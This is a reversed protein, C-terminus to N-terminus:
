YFITSIFCGDGSDDNNEGNTQENVTIVVSDSDSDGDNDTGLLIVDFTGVKNFVLEGPNVLDSNEAGGNFDWSCTMPPNGGLISGQFLISDGVIISQDSSPLLIKVVPQEENCDPTGDLDSDTDAVGCGCIGPDVKNPDNPCNDVTGQNWGALTAWLWWAAYAKRNANLAQSHASGCTYWDVGETHSNQWAIAWNADRIGNGDSDYDCNDNVLKDGYYDGEPDYIEIDYFDYLVKNNAICYNRIQQNRLHLNGTEGTGDAHGTMYVFIVDPYDQELQNMPSLYNDIIQQETLSSVQGCWSWIIVNVDANAANNLYERTNNVWDPYYGVDGGMARDHLDLAGNNGGNNWSLIDNPLTLGLGGSNAFTVLGTMGDVLQSGHSTHGYAIHLNAKAQEIAAQPINTIDTSNHDIIIPEDAMVVFTAMLVYVLCMM